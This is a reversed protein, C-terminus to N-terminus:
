GKPVHKVKRMKNVDILRIELVNVKPIHYIHRMREGNDLYDGVFTIYGAKEGILVGASELVYSPDYEQAGRATGDYNADFWKIYVLKM